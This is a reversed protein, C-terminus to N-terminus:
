VFPDVDVKLVSSSSAANPCLCFCASSSNLICPKILWNWNKGIFWPCTSLTSLHNGSRMVLIMSHNEHLRRKEKEKEVRNNVVIVVRSYGQDKRKRKKSKRVIKMESGGGRNKYLLM